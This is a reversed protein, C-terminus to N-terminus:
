DNSFISESINNFNINNQYTELWKAFLYIPQILVFKSYYNLDSNRFHNFIKKALFSELIDINTLRSDDLLLKSFKEITAYNYKRVRTIMFEEYMSTHTSPFDFLNPDLCNMVEFQLNPNFKIENPLGLIYTVFPPYQFGSFCEGKNNGMRLMWHINRRSRNNIRFFLVSAQYGDYRQFDNEFGVFALNLINKNINPKFIPEFNTHNMQLFMEYYNGVKTPMHSARLLGDGDNGTILPNNNLNPLNNLFGHFWVHYWSEFCTLEYYRDVTEEYWNPALELYENGIGFKKACISAFVRDNDFGIDTDTTFSIIKKKHSIFSSLLMRSDLGGSLALNITDFQSSYKRIGENFLDAIENYVKSKNTIKTESDLYWFKNIKRFTMKNLDFTVIQQVELSKIDQFYTKDGLIYHLSLFEAWAIWDVELTKGCEKVVWDIDRAILVIEKDQYWYLCDNGSPDCFISLFNNSLDLLAGSFLGSTGLIGDLSYEIRNLFGMPSILELNEDRPYGIM